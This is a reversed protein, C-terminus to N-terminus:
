AAERRRNDREIDALVDAWVLGRGLRPMSTVRQPLSEGGAMDDFAGTPVSALTPRQADLDDVSAGATDNTTM